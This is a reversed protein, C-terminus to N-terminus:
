AKRGRCRVSPTQSALALVEVFDGYFLISMYTLSGPQRQFCTSWNEFVISQCFAIQITEANVAFFAIAIQFEIEIQKEGFELRNRHEM